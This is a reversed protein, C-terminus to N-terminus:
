SKLVKKIKDLYRTVEALGIRGGNIRERILTVADAAAEDLLGKYVCFCWLASDLAWRDETRVKESVQEVTLSSRDRKNIYDAFAQFISRGTLQMFGGGRLNWGDNPQTNGNRGGYTDNAIAVPKRAVTLARDNPLYPKTKTKSYRGPWIDALREASYNMNESKRSFEGSEVLANALFEELEDVTDMGYPPALENILGSLLKARDLSMTGAILKLQEPTILM